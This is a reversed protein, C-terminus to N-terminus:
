YYDIRIQFLFSRPVTQLLKLMVKQVAVLLAALKARTIALTPGDGGTYITNADSYGTGITPTFIGACFIQQKSEDQMASGVTFTISKWSSQISQHLIITVTRLHNGCHEEDREKM